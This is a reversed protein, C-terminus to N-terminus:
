YELAGIISRSARSYQTGAKAPIVAKQSAARHAWAEAAHNTTKCAVKYGGSKFTLIGTPTTDVIISMLGFWVLRPDHRQQRISTLAAAM